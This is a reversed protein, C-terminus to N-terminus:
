KKIQLQKADYVELQEIRAFQEQNVKMPNPVLSISGVSSDAELGLMMIVTCVAIYLVINLLRM